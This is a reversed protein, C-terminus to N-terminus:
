MCIDCPNIEERLAELRSIAESQEADDLYRCGLVHYVKGTATLYVKDMGWLGRESTRANEEARKFDDNYKDDTAKESDAIAFGDKVMLLNVLSRKGPEENVMLFVYALLRDGSKKNLLIELRVPAGGILEDLHKAAAPGGVPDKILIGGISPDEPASVGILRIKEIDGNDLEVVITDGDTIETVIAEETEFDAANAASFVTLLILLLRM